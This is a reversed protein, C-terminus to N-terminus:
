FGRVARIYNRSTEYRHGQSGNNFDQIWAFVTGSESSSWYSANTFGGIKNKNEFLVELEKKTPLRWGEGLDACSKKADGWNMRGLDETMIELERIKISPYIKTELDAREEKNLTTDVQNEDNIEQITDTTKTADTNNKEITPAEGCSILFVLLFVFLYKM